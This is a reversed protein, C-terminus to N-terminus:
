LSRDSYEALFEVVGAQPSNQNIYTLAKVMDIHKKAGKPKKLKMKGEKSEYKTWGCQREFEKFEESDDDQFMLVSKHELRAQLDFCDESVTTPTASYMNVMFEGFREKLSEALGRGVGIADVTVKSIRWFPILEKLEREQAPISAGTYWYCNVIHVYPYIGSPTLTHMIKYIWVVTSDAQSDADGELANEVNQESSAAVDILMQYTSNPDPKIERNHEGSFLARVHHPQLYRGESAVNILRYQTKIIPHDWGLAKVRAEVHKQYAPNGDMWIDCPLDINLDERGISKNHEHYFSILDLGDAAVGWLIIAASTNAAMPAFDEDFKEPTVKHAEDMDLAVNATGGVVNANPGSSIFEVSANGVRWIYGEEKELRIGNFLPYKITNASTLALLERLRKKSNTIQPKWTPATRIWIQAANHNQRRWLHRRHLVASIENKGTQRAQRVSMVEGDHRAVHKEVLKIVHAQPGRLPRPKSGLNINESEWQPDKGCRLYLDRKSAM